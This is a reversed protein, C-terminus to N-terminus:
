HKRLYVRWTPAWRAPDEFFSMDEIRHIVTNYPANKVKDPDEYAEQAITKLGEIYEDLDEKSYSETPEITFPEPVIWPHHSTWLHFGFDTMRRIVDEVTVGTEDALKKFSYRVQGVRYRTKPFSIDAGRVEKLIRNMVYNNNLIAIRAVERVGEDGLSMLWSYARLVVPFVGYFERVKGITNPLDYNLYYRDQSSDYDVVPVPLFSELEKTAGVAGLGPGGCGHPSSFTKHLNYFCLDFGLDITRVYGLLGNANAQDYACIGGAEHVLSTMEKIRPNFIETDEPNCIIMGATRESVAAEFAEMDPLGTEPDPPIDIVKFGKLKATAADSPHSLLTTIIEDKHDNGKVRHYKYIISAMTYLAHSGGGPQFVFRSFGSLGRLMHDLRYIIELAGQVTEEPQYPHLETVKPTRALMENIKPSYKMTCTGQGIDINVDIGLTQQSLRLYHRLVKIQAVEPLNPKDKRRMNQPITSLADGASREIEADVPPVLIGREGERNMEFIIPEDWKAQHFNKRLKVVAM